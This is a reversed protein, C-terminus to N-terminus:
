TRSTQTNRFEALSSSKSMEEGVRKCCSTWRDPGLKNLQYVCHLLKSSPM